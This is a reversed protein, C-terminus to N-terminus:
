KCGPARIGDQLGVGSPSPFRCAIALSILSISALLTIEGDLEGKAAGTMKALFGSPEQRKQASKRFSLSIVMFSRYGKGRMSSTNETIPFLSIKLAMSKSEPNQCSGTRGLSRPLVANM